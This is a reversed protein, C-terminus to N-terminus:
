IGDKLLIYPNELLEKVRKLFKCGTAGDAIRHDVSLVAKMVKRIEIRKDVVVPTDKISGISLIAAQPPNIIAALWEVDFMGVNSITFTGGYVDKPELRHEEAKKVLESRERAIESLRKKDVNRIVPAVLEDGVAIAVCINIEPFLMINGNKFTSNLVPFERLAIAVAKMILDDYALRTEALKEIEPILSQRLKVLESADINIQIYFHPINKKSESMKEATVRRIKSLEILQYREEEKMKEAYELVDKALIRGGPGTGKVKRLDIGKERAIKKALPSARVEVKEIKAPAKVKEIIPAEEPLEEDMSDAIYAITKGVDVIEGESYLIKRLYGSREAELEFSAKDVDIRLLPEGKEVREGEKKLWQGIVGKEMAQDLKPMIIKTIM